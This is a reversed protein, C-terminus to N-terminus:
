RGADRVGDAEGVDGTALVADAQEAVGDAPMGMARRLQGFGSCCWSQARFSLLLGWIRLRMKLIVAFSHLRISWRRLFYGFRMKQVQLQLLFIQVSSQLQIHWRSLMFQLQMFWRALLFGLRMWFIRLKWFLWVAVVSGIQLCSLGISAAGFWGLLRSTLAPKVYAM